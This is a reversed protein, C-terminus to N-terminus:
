GDRLEAPVLREHGTIEDVLHDAAEPLHAGREQETCADRVLDAAGQRAGQGRVPGRRLHQLLHGPVVGEDGLQAVTAPVAVVREHPLHQPRAEMHLVGLQFPFEVAGCGGPVLAAVLPPGCQLVRHGRLLPVEDAPQGETGRGHQQEGRVSRGEGREGVADRERDCVAVGFQQQTEGERGEAPPLVLDLGGQHRARVREDALQRLGPTGDCLEVEVDQRGDRCPPGAVGALHGVVGGRSGPDNLLQPRLVSGPPHGVATGGLREGGDTLDPGPTGAVGLGQEQRCEGLGVPGAELSVCGDVVLSLVGQGLHHEAPDGRRARDRQAGELRRLLHASPEADLRAGGPEGQRSRLHLPAIDCRGAAGQVETRECGVAGSVREHGHAKVDHSHPAREQERVNRGGSAVEAGDLPAQHAMGPHAVHRAQM